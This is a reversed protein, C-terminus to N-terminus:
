AASSHLAFAVGQAARLAYLLPGVSDVAAFGLSAVGML